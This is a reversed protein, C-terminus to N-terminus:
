HRRVVSARRQRHATAAAAGAAGFVPSGDGLADTVKAPLQYRSVPHNPDQLVCALDAAGVLQPLDDFRQYPLALIWQELGGIDARLTELERTGFLLVRYRDDALRDLARLVDVIGKHVRPTGGFLLLRDHESVGLRRRTEARDYRAPDFVREDRAHPVIVGGFREQLAVNSVTVEDAADILPMCARTWTREFPLTVDAVGRMKLVDHIDLGETEEFFALEHDDVDLVLPRNRLQKAMVGLGYSPFRPKSVYIADADIKAAVENMVGLHAPFTRGAFTRVPISSERLPAWVGSGYREFQAGWIEVEFHRSLVGALVHARGLPNHGIDWALVAVKPRSRRSHASHPAAGAGYRTSPPFHASPPEEPDSGHSELERRSREIGGLVKDLPRIAPKRAGPKLTRRLATIRSAVRWARSHSLARVDRRTARLVENAAAAAGEVSRRRDTETRLDHEVEAVKQGLGDVAEQLEAVRQRRGQDDEFFRLTALAGESVEDPVVNDDLVTGDDIAVALQVQQENMSQNRLASSRRARHLDPTIFATVEGETPVRLQHTGFDNLQGILRAVTEFPSAMMDEYRVLLRPLGESAQFAKITYLEWLALGAPTPFGNRTRLSEAVELPERTVHICVPLELLPRLLPFLLSLRPEKVVWPRHADLNLLIRKFEALRRARVEEPIKDLSFGWVRWWDFGSDQLVGDCAARVDLREWFGKPNGEDAGNSMGEPGFYAGAMNLIRTVGSTGSRHMGLVFLQM